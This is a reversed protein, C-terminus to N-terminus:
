QGPGRCSVVVYIARLLVDRRVVQCSCRVSIPRVPPSIKGFPVSALPVKVQCDADNLKRSSCHEFAVFAAGDYVSTVIEVKNATAAVGATKLLPLVVSAGASFRECPAVVTTLAHLLM